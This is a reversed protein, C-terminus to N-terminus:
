MEIREWGVPHRVRYWPVPLFHSFGAALRDQLERLVVSTITALDAMGHVDQMPIWALEVLEKDPGIAGDVKGSIDSAEAALFITDYRRPLRPPTIARGVFHITELNPLQGQAAFDSWSGAPAVVPEGENSAGLILGTEEFMERIGAMAIARANSRGRIHGLRQEVLDPLVGAAPMLKDESDLQGGPFVFKDPMFTNKPNRRGMLVRPQKGSRDILIITAAIRARVGNPQFNKVRPWIEEM